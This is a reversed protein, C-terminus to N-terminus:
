CCCDSQAKLKKGTLKIFSQQPSEDRGSFVRESSDKPTKVVYDTYTGDLSRLCQLFKKARNAALGASPHDASLHIVFRHGLGSQPRQLRICEAPIDALRAHRRVVELIATGTVMSQM